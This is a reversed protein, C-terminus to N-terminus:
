DHDDYLDARSFDAPLSQNSSRSAMQDLLRKSEEPTPRPRSVFSPSAITAMQDCRAELVIANIQQVVPEPLGTLDVTTLPMSNPLVIIM